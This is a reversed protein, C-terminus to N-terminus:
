SHSSYSVRFKGLVKPASKLWEWGRAGQLHSILGWKVFGLLNKGGGGGKAMLLGHLLPTTSDGRCM